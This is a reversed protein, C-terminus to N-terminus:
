KLLLARRGRGPNTKPRNQVKQKTNTNRNVSTNALNGSGGRLTGAISGVSTGIALAGPGLVPTLLGGIVPALKSITGLIWKWWEGKANFGVPVCLPLETALISYLALAKYDYIASPSSLPILDIDWRLPARELYVRVRIKFTADNALGSMFIGSQTVNIQKSTSGCTSATILPPVQVATLSETYTTLCDQAGSFMPDGAICISQRTPLTFPNEVGTQGVVMYAGDKMEWQTSSRYLIAEGVSSPPSPVVVHELQTQLVGAVNYGLSARANGGMPMRYATLAGQRYIPATTDIIELGLGIVRSLGEQIGAFSNIQAMEFNASVMPSVTTFLPGGADDKAVNVLGVEFPNATAVFQGTTNTGLDFTASDFPMVFVHADWNALSGAPKSVNYEYNRVSVITDMTDADPYGAIPRSFDHYPDLRLTLWDAGDRTLQKSKIMQSMANARDIQKSRTYNM